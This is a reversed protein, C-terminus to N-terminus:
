QAVKLTSRATLAQYFAQDVPLTIDEVTAREADLQAQRRFLV